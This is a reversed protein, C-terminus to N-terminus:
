GSCRGAARDAVVLPGKTASRSFVQGVRETALLLAGGGGEARWLAGGAFREISLGDSVAVPSGAACICGDAPLKVEVWHEFPSDAAHHVSVKPADRPRRLM